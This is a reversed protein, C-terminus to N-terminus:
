TGITSCPLATFCMRSCSDRMRQLRIMRPLCPVWTVSSSSIPLTVRRTSELAQHPAIPIAGSMRFIWDFFGGCQRVEDSGVFRLRRRCALQILIPDVYSLHNAVILVGGTAPVQEWGRTRVRYLCAVIARCLLELIWPLHSHRRFLSRDM